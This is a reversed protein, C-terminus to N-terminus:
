LQGVPKAPRVRAIVRGSWTGGPYIEAPDALVLKATFRPMIQWHLTRVLILVRGDPIQVMDVPRYGEPPDFNFEAARLEQAPDDVPDASVAVRRFGPEGLWAVGRRARHFAWRGAASNSGRGQQLLLQRMQPPRVGRPM